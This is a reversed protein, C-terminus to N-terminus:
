YKGEVWNFLKPTEDFFLMLRVKVALLMRANLAVFM